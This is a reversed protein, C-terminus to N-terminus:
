WRSAQPLGVPRWLDFRSRLGAALQLRDSDKSFGTGLAGYLVWRRLKRAYIVRLYRPDDGRDPGGEAIGEVGVLRRTSLPREFAVRLIYVDNQSANDFPSGLIGLGLNAHLWSGDTLSKSAILYGFFDTEDTVGGDEDSGNPLKVEYLFALAPRRGKEAALWIKTGFTWDGSNTSSRSGDDIASVVTGSVQLEAVRGLGFSLRIEGFDWQRNRPAVGFDRPQDRFLLGTDLTLIAPETTAAEETLFPREALLADTTLLTLILISTRALLM